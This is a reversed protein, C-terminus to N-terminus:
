LSQSQGILAFSQFNEQQSPMNNQLSVENIRRVMFTPRKGTRSNVITTLFIKVSQCWIELAKIYM